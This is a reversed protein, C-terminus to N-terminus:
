ESYRRMLAQQASIGRDSVRMSRGDPGLQWADLTDHLYPQLAEDIVRQRLKPDLVPWGVEIRRFMNRSMWDASSLYLAEEDDTEGWRFYCVRSHELFRGVVSRVVINDTQGPLGPPLMCAGRVILDVRAGAQATRVLAHILEADTLANIKVVVRACTNGARAAAEVKALLELFRSHMDFPALLMRRLAKFKSLSALQRFVSDADATLEADATLLGLDTYLRATKPNYNGTSLHAYRRLKNGERRTIMLLKAHTKYGVIGYVVQAGVAELREAWNINAEEDFRAKLEVVAMVEKGRRAAEILLDMLESKAGTRYITQKIALVDPDQVAERLMQVVPEFSEFPHHLLVDGKRLREFISKLRPLRTEPWAPEYPRFRLEPAATQDILENLRVLNVPGNVRYLAAAPLAFQELLFQSLEAPCTNVVELRVARGFHRTTLGSRLAHRLNAVEEEDVELDSDRTVRFQSFAEVKRGPFLDELHARIVSTLLAYAQRGGTVNAPLKIVRPLVRPVKVIAIRNDRGFADKGSVRAIFHLSKNAVQPFPHAPDLGVPVLLPKVEREFFQRVWERQPGDRDAHNLIEIGEDRLRPMVQENFVHYQEDILTHAARGVREVDQASVSSAPDRAADLMDAFRVEFFEDLNSSVICIYRLRELLPVDERQAQALVRRNFELIAQERNLLKLPASQPAAASPTPDTM